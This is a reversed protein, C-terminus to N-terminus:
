TSNCLSPSAAVAEVKGTSFGGSTHCRHSRIIIRFM